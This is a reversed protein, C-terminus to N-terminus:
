FSWDRLIRERLREIEGKKQGELNVQLDLVQENMHMLRGALMKLLAATFKRAAASNNHSQRTVHGGDLRIVVTEQKAQV